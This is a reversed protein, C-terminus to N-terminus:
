FPLETIIKTNRFLYESEALDDGIDSSILFFSNDKEEIKKLSISYKRVILLSGIYENIRLNTLM